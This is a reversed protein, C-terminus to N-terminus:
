SSFISIYLMGKNNIIDCQVESDNNLANIISVYDNSM